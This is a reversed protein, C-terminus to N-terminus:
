LGGTTVVMLDELVLVDMEARLFCAIAQQPTCVIPESENFSTNLVVPVGTLSEFAKLLRWYRENSERHVTQVRGTGDVHTVAPLRDRWAPRVKPAFLMFPSPGDHDFVDAVREALVSPAFPRFPERRKTRRNVLDKMGPDRPDCVISRNGLARPGFEMRGQFWGVIRGSAVHAAVEDFLRDDDLKEFALGADHLADRCQESTFAPGLSVHQMKRTRAGGLLHHEVYMAAGLSTGADSAAPQVFVDDFGCEALIRTNAPVNLAVGGAMALRGMGTSRRLEAVIPILIEELRAQASAAIDRHRDELEDTPARAPGLLDELEATYLTGIEPGGEDFRWTFPQRGPRFYALALRFGSPDATVIRRMEPLFRPMGYPALGMVKYEDGYHPFGLHQTIATYFFGLSHPFFVRHQVDLNTGRGVGWSMSVQDGLGDISCIAAEDFGSAYFASALHTPHHEVHHRGATSRLEGHLGDAVADFVNTIQSRGRLSATPLQHTHLIQRGAAVVRRVRHAHPDRSVAVHDVASASVDAIELVARAANLPLGAAHKVRTIREEEVAAVVEGDVLLAASADGHFANLGLILM